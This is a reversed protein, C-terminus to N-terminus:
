KRRGVEELTVAKSVRRADILSKFRVKAGTRGNPTQPGLDNATPSNALIALGRMAAEQAAPSGSTLTRILQSVAQTRFLEAHTQPVSAMKSLLTSSFEEAM